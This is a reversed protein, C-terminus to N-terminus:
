SLTRVLGCSHRSSASDGSHASPQDGSEQATIDLLGTEPPTPALLVTPPSGSEVAAAARMYDALVCIGPSVTHAIVPQGVITPM